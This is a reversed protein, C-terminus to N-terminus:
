EPTSLAVAKQRKARYHSAHRGVPNGLFDSGDRRNVCCDLSLADRETGKWV